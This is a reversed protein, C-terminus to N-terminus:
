NQTYGVRFQLALKIAALAGVEVVKKGFLNDVAGRAGRLSVINADVALAVRSSAIM